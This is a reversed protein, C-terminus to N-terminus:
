DTPAYCCCRWDDEGTIAIRRLGHAAFAVDVSDAQAALMGSAVLVGDRSVIRALHPALERLTIALINAVVLDFHGEVRDLPTSSVEVLAAVGNREANARTADIANPDIDIAVVTARRAVAAAISLVGGGCGVDLVRGGDVRALVEALALKTTVHAGCGFARGPDITIVIRATETGAVPAVPMWAPQVLVDDVLV